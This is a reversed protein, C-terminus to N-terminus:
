HELMNEIFIGYGKTPDDVFVHTVAGIVKNDQIIPSGSMGQVIGNTLKLLEEDTIKIVISKNSKDNIDVSVIEIEYDRLENQIMCRIYAKGEYIDQKLGVDMFKYENCLELMRSGAIGYIGNETNENIEGLIKEDNYDIIGCLGGPNGVEGRRIGWIHADYLVGREITVLEGTDMDTIGHGLAGFERDETIYTVTGIGQLDDRVWIGLKYEKEKNKIPKTAISISKNNRIIDIELEEQGYNNVLFQLQEKDTVPIGNINTIYDGERLKGLCPEYILGDDGSVKDVDVILVGRSDLYMGAQFGCPLIKKSEVVGVQITKLEFLGFLKCKVSYDQNVGANTAVVEGKGIVAGFPLDIEINNEEGELVCVKDPIQNNYEKGIFFGALSVGAILIMVLVRRYIFKRGVYDGGIKSIFSSLFM